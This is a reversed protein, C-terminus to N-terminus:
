MTAKKKPDLSQLKQTEEGSLARNETGALNLIERAQKVLGGRTEQLLKLKM